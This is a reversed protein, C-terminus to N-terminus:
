QPFSCSYIGSKAPDLEFKTELMVIGDLHIDQVRESMFIRYEKLRAACACM